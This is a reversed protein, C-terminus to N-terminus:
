PELATYAAFRATARYTMVGTKGAVIEAGSREVRLVDNVYVRLRDGIAELKLVFPTGPAVALPVTGLVTITGNTLKRLSLENTKRVTVYYYNNADEYRAMLGVWPSGVSSFANVTIMAQVINDERKAGTTRRATAGIATQQFDLPTGSWNGGLTEPDTFVFDTVPGPSVVVNDFDAAAKYMRIGAHGHAHSRDYLYVVRKGDVRVALYSGSTELNVHYTQGPAVDLPASGLETYVGNLMRKLVVRNSDRVTVYYYNSEDTYRTMLGVWRDVGDVSNLRIDASVSQDTLDSIHIAGADGALSSQRYVHTTGNSVVAFQSGPLPTWQSTTGPEFDDQVLAPVAFSAPVTFDLPQNGFDGGLGIIRNGDIFALSLPTERTGVFNALHEFSHDPLERYLYAATSTRSAFGSVRLIYQDTIQISGDIDFIDRGPNEFHGTQTWGSAGRRYVYAGHDAGSALALAGHIAVAYAFYQPVSEDGQFNAAITWGSNGREFIRLSPPQEFDVRSRVIAANTDLDLATVCTGAAVPLTGTVGWHGNVGRNLLLARTACDGETALITNGSLDLALGQPRPTTDLVSETWGANTREFIRLGNPMAIAALTSSMAVTPRQINQMSVESALTQELVWQGSANRRYLNAEYGPQSGPPLDQKKIVSIAEDGALGVWDWSHPLQDPAEVILPRGVALSACALAAFPLLRSRARRALTYGAKM